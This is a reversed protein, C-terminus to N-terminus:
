GNGETTGSLKAALARYREADNEARDRECKRRVPNFVIADCRDAAVHLGGRATEAEEESLVIAGMPVIQHGPPVIHPLWWELVQRHARVWGQETGDPSLIKALEGGYRKAYSHVAAEVQQATAGTESM